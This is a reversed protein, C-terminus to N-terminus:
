LRSPRGGVGGPQGAGDVDRGGAPRPAKPEQEEWRLRGAQSGAARGVGAARSSGRAGIFILAHMCKERAGSLLTLM